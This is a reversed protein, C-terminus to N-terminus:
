PTRGAETLLVRVLADVKEYTDVYERVDVGRRRWNKDVEVQLRRPKGGPRKVEVFVPPGPAYVPRLILRDMPGSYGPTRCKLVLFGYKRLVGLRDEVQAELM